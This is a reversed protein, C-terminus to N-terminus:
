VREGGGERGGEEMRGVRRGGENQAALGVLLVGKSALRSYGFTVM